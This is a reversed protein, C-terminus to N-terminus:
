TGQRTTFTCAYAALGGASHLALLDDYYYFANSSSSFFPELKKEKKERGVSQCQNITYLFSFRLFNENSLSIMKKESVNRILPSSRVNELSFYTGYYNM